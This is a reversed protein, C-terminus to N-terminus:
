QAPTVATDSTVKKYPLSSYYAAIDEIDKDSLDKVYSSMMDSKRKGARYARLAKALYEKKQGALNPWELSVSIGNQGHCLACDASKTKGAIANGAYIQYAPLLSLTIQTLLIILVKM